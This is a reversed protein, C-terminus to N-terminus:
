AERVATPASHLAALRRFLLLHTGVVMPVIWLPLLPGPFALLAAMSEPHGSFLLARQATFFAALIDVFAIVNWAAAIRPRAPLALAAMPVLLGVLLDGWGAIRTFTDDLGATAHLVFFGVGIPARISHFLVLARLEVRDAVRRLAGGALYLSLLTAVSAAVSAPVLFAREVSLVGSLAVVCAAALWLGLGAAVRAGDHPSSHSANSPLTAHM